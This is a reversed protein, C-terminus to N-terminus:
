ALVVLASRMSRHGPGCPVNCFYTFSGAQTADFEIVEEQGPSVAGTAIGFDPIAVGHTGSSSTVHVRVHDGVHIEPGSQNFGFSYAEITIDKVPHNSPPTTAPAANDGTSPPTSGPPTTVPPLTQQPAPPSTPNATPTGVPASPTSPTQTTSCAAILAAILAIGLILMFPNMRNKNAHKM